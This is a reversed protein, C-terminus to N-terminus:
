LPLASCMICSNRSSTMHNAWAYGSQWKMLSQLIFCAVESPLRAHRMNVDLARSKDFGPETELLTLTGHHGHRARVWKYLAPRSAPWASCVLSHSALAVPGTCVFVLLLAVVCANMDCPSSHSWLFFPCSSTHATDQWAEERNKLVWGVGPGQPSAAFTAGAVRPYWRAARQSDRVRLLPQPWRGEERGLDKVDAVEAVACAGLGAPLSEVATQVGRHLYAKGCLCHPAAEPCQPERASIAKWFDLYWVEEQKWKSM